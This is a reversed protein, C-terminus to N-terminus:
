LSPKVIITMQYYEFIQCLDSVNIILDGALYFALGFRKRASLIGTIAPGCAAGLTRVVNTIGM